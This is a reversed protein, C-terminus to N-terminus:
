FLSPQLAKDSYVVSVVDLRDLGYQIHSIVADLFDDYSEYDKETGDFEATVNVNVTIM